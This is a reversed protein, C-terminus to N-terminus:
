IDSALSYVSISAEGGKDQWFVDIEIQKLGAQAQTVRVQRQYNSFGTIPAKAEDIIGVYSLNRLEELKEEALNKALSFHKAQSSESLGISFANVLAVLGVSLLVTALLLEM